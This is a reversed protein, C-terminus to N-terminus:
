MFTPVMPRCECKVENATEVRSLCACHIGESVVQRNSALINLVYEDEKGEVEEEGDSEGGGGDGGSIEIMARSVVGVGNGACAAGLVGPALM